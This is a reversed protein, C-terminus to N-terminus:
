VKTIKDGNYIKLGFNNKAIETASLILKEGIEGWDLLRIADNPSVLYRDYIKGNDPDPLPEGILDIVATMRVQAYIESGDEEDVDQYGVYLIEDKLITNVEEVFERRLTMLIDKDSPEPKGGALSYIIKENLKEARILIKGDDSFAVGYVQKIKMNVPVSESHWGLFAM